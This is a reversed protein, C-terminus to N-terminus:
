FSKGKQTTIERQQERVKGPIGTGVSIKLYRSKVTAAQPGQEQGPGALDLFCCPAQTLRLSDGLHALPELVKRWNDKGFLGRFYEPVSFGPAPHPPPHTSPLSSASSLGQCNKWSALTQSYLHQGLRVAHPPNVFSRQLGFLKPHQSLTSPKQAKRNQGSFPAPVIWLGWGLAREKQHRSKGM